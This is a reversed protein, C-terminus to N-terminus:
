RVTTPKFMSGIIALAAGVLLLILSFTWFFGMLLSGTIATLFQLVASIKPYHIAVGGGVIAFVGVFVGFFSRVLIDGAEEAQFAAGLGGLALTLLAAIIGFVGGTIGMVLAATRM